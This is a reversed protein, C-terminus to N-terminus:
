QIIQQYSRAVRTRTVATNALVIAANFRVITTYSRGRTRYQNQRLLLMKITRKKNQYCIQQIKMIYAQQNPIHQTAAADRLVSQLYM